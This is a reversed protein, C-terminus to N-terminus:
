SPLYSIQRNRGSGPECLPPDVWVSKGKHVMMQLNLEWDLCERVPGFTWALKELFKRSFLMSDTCRFPYQHDPPYLAMDAFYSRGECGKPRTGVGEGLSVYDWDKWADEKLMTLVKNLREVFDERIYVDSEFVLIMEHGDLLAKEIVHRFTLLLSLEGKLMSDAKFTLAIKNGFREKYPQWFPFVDEPTLETGWPGHVIQVLGQPIGRKALM